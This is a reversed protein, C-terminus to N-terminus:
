AQRGLIVHWRCLALTTGTLCMNANYISYTMRHVELFATSACAYSSTVEHSILESMM